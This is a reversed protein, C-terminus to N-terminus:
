VAAPSRQSLTYKVSNEMSKYGLRSTRLPAEYLLGYQFAVDIMEVVNLM